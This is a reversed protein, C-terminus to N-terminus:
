NECKYNKTVPLFNHAPFDAWPDHHSQASKIQSTLIGHKM